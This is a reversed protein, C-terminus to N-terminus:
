QSKKAHPITLVLDEEKEKAEKNRQVM